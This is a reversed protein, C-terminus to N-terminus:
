ICSIFLYVQERTADTCLYYSWVGDARGGGYATGGEWTSLDPWSPFQRKHFGHQEVDGIPTLGLASILADTEAQTCRFYYTDGFDAIGGGTFNTRLDRASSPLDAGTFRKLRGSPTPPNLVLDAIVIVLAAIGPLAILVNRFRQWRRWRYLGYVLLGPILGHVLWAIGTFFVHFVGNTIGELPDSWRFAQDLVFSGTFLVFSVALPSLLFSQRRTLTGNNDNLQSGTNMM